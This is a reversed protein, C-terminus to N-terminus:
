GGRVTVGYEGAADELWAWTYEAFSRHIFLHYTAAKNKKTEATQHIMVHALALSSQACQGPGFSRPHLDLGCGKKLVDRANEGSLSLITRSDSVDFVAAHHGKLATGLGELLKVTQNAPTTLLWEDPGMWLATNKGKTTATNPDVPLAFGLAKEAAELITTDRADLRLGIQGTIPLEALTVGTPNDPASRANLGLHALASQQMYAEVM